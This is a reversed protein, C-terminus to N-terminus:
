DRKRVPLALNASTCIYTHMLVQSGSSGIGGGTILESETRQSHTNEKRLLRSQSAAPTPSVSNMKLGREDLKFEGNKEGREKSVVQQQWQARQLFLSVHQPHTHARETTRITLSLLRSGKEKRAETERKHM